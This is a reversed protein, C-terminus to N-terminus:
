QHNITTKQQRVSTPTHGTQQKYARSFYYLDCFGCQQAIESMSLTSLQLYRTANSIRVERLYSFITKNTAGKFKRNLYDFSYHFHSELFDGTINQAYHEELFAIMTQVISDTHIIQDEHTRFLLILIELIRIASLSRYYEKKQVREKLAGIEFFKEIERKASKGGLHIHRPLFIEREQPTADSITALHSNRKGLLFASEDHVEITEVPLEFHLFYYACEECGLPMQLEGKNFLAVDGPLLELPEGNNELQLRGSIMYYMVVCDTTRTRHVTPPILHEKGYYILNPIQDIKVKYYLM